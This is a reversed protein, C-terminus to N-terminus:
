LDAILLMFCVVYLWGIQILRFKAMLKILIVSECDNIWESKNHKIM